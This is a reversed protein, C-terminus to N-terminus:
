FINQTRFKYINAEIYATDSLKNKHNIKGSTRLKKKKKQYKISDKFQPMQRNIVVKM